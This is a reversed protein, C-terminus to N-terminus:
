LQTRLGLAPVASHSRSPREQKLLVHKWHTVAVRRKRSAHVHCIHASDFFASCSDHRQRAICIEADVLCVFLITSLVVIAVCHLAYRKIMVENCKSKVNCNVKWHAHSAKFDWSSRCEMEACSVAWLLGWRSLQQSIAM